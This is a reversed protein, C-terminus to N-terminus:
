RQADDRRQDEFKPGLYGSPDMLSQIGVKRRYELEEDTHSYRDTTRLSSHGIWQKQLDGPTGYKRLMTVRSHRFAHLGARPINLEKLLPTLVRNRINVDSFPTGNRTEFLLSRNSDGIYARLAEALAPDIDIQRVANETKPTQEHGRWVSRRVYIIGHDLDLDERPHLALAEGIRMGTGALLLFLVRFCGPAAAIIQKLHAETFYPQKPRGAKGLDVEWSKWIRRGVVLKVVGVINLVTKRSLRYKKVLTGDKRRREFGAGKLEAVFEQVITEDVMDLTLTGLRPLIHKTLQGEMSAIPGPKGDTWAKHFKRCWQVKEEFTQVQNRSRALHQPQNVGSRAVIEAGKRSAEPKTLKEKGTAPGVPLSKRQRKNTGPVDAYFRVHWMHYKKYISGSQGSRRRMSRTDKRRQDSAVISLTDRDSFTPSDQLSHQM